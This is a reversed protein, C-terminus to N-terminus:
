VFEDAVLPDPIPEIRLLLGTTESPLEKDALDAFARALHSREEAMTVEGSLLISTAAEFAEDTLALVRSAYGAGPPVGPAASAFGDSEHHLAVLLELGASLRGMEAEEDKGLRVLDEFFRDFRLTLTRVHPEVAELTLYRGRPEPRTRGSDAPSIRSSM